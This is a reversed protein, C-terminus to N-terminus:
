FKLFYFLRAEDRRTKEDYDYSFLAGGLVSFHTLRGRSVEFRFFPNLEFEFFDRRGGIHFLKYLIRFDWRGGERESYRALEWLLRLDLDGRRDWSYWTLPFLISGYEGERHRRHFGALPPILTFSTDGKGEHWWLPLLRTHTYDGEERFSFLPWMLDVQTEDTAPRRRYKFLPFLVGTSTLDDQRFMWTALAPVLTLSEKEDGDHWWLPVFRSHATKGTRGASFLPWLLNLRWTERSPRSAYHFLPFLISLDVAEKRRTFLTFPAVLTSRDRTREYMWLPFFVNSHSGKERIDWFLPFLVDSKREGRWRWYLPFISWGEGDRSWWNWLLPSFAQVGKRSGPSVSRLYLPLLATTRDGDIKGHFDWYFPFQVRDTRRRNRNEFWLPFLVRTGGNARRVDWYLPFLVDAKEKGRWRWFFPFFSWGRGRPNWWDWFFPTISRFGSVAGPSRSMFYFPLLATLRKGDGKEALDWFLPFLVRDRRRPTDSEFWLPLVMRTRGERRRFDWYFPFLIDAETRGRWGWYIPLTAWGSGAPNWWNWLLPSFAQVGSRGSPSRSMFYFPPVATTRGENKKNMFDWYVPFLVKDSRRRNENQFWFPLILRTSADGRQVRWYVPFLADSEEKGRWNWLFPFVSWGSGARNWWNWFFPSLARVGSRGGDRAHELYLPVLATTRNGAKSGRFNWYFPFLVDAKEKGRWRYYFPFLASGTGLPNWWNWIFPTVATTGSKGGEGRRHLYFPVLAWTRSKDKKSRCNWYLPFLVKDSRSASEREFWFPLIMRTNRGKTRHHWYLPFLVDTKEEGRWRFYFPFLASGTGLPNWWNWILPTVAQVGRMGGKGESRLYIPFLATTRRGSKKSELDWYLPFFVRDSRADDEREFWFPLIARTNGKENRFHWYFPFVVDAKTEGRWGWYFPFLTELQKMTGEGPWQFRGWFPFIVKDHWPNEGERWREWLFPFLIRTGSRGPTREHFYLPPLYTYSRERSNGFFLFPAIRGSYGTRDGEFHALPWLLNIDWSETSPDSGWSILPDLLFTKRYSGKKYNGYIPFVHTWSENKSWKQWFFPFFTSFGEEEKWSSWYFPFLHTHGGGLTGKKRWEYHAFLPWLIEVDLASIYDILHTDLGDRERDYSRVEFLPWLRVPKRRGRGPGTEEAEGYREGSDGLISLGIGEGPEAMAPGDLAAFSFFVTLLVLSLHRGSSAPIPDATHAHIEGRSDM